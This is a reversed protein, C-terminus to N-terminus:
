LIIKAKTENRSKKKLDNDTIGNDILSMDRRKKKLYLARYRNRNKEM